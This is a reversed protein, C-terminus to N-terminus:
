MQGCWAIVVDLEHIAGALDKTVERHLLEKEKRAATKIAVNYVKDMLQVPYGYEARQFVARLVRCWTALRDPVTQSPEPLQAHRYKAAYAHTASQFADFVNRRDKLDNPSGASLAPNECHNKWRAQLELVHILEKAQESSLREADSESFQSMTVKTLPVARIAMISQQPKPLEYRVVSLM